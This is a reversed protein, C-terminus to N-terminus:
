QSSSRPWKGSVCLTCLDTLVSLTGRLQHYKQCTKVAVLLLDYSV